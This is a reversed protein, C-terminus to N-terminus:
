RVPSCELPNSNAGSSGWDYEGYAQGHGHCMNCNTCLPIGDGRDHIFSEVQQWGAHCAGCFRGFPVSGNGLTDVQVPLEVTTSTGTTDWPPGLWLYGRGGDDVFSTGDVVDRILYPNGAPNEATASGHPDHCATCAMDYSPAGSYGPWPRKSSGGHASHPYTFDVWWPDNRYATACSDMPVLATSPGTVGAPFGPADPGSGGAHCRLCFANASGTWPVLPAVPDTTPSATSAAHAGHCSLCELKAGSFAQDADSVDHHSNVARGSGSAGWCRDPAYYQNWRLTGSFKTAVDFPAHGGQFPDTPTALRTAGDADHCSACFTSVDPDHSLDSAVVFRYPAGGDADLLEVTGSAHLGLGHCVECDLSDVAPGGMHGRAPSTPFEPVVARRGSPPTGDGDDIPGDHCDACRSPLFGRGHRHCVACDAGVAHDHDASADRTHHATAAHCAQCAGDWPAASAGFALQAPRRQFVLPSAAGPVARVVSARVLSLNSATTGGPHPDISATPGHPDHCDGCWITRAGGAVVHSAVDATAWAQGTPNHCSRCLADQAAGYAIFLGGMGHVAHCSTCDIGNSADHPPALAAAAPALVAALAAVLARRGIM